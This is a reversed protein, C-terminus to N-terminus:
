EGNAAGEAEPHLPIMLCLSIFLPLPLFVSCNLIGNSQAERDSQVLSAIPVPVKYSNPRDDSSEILTAPIAPPMRKPICRKFLARLYLAPVAYARGIPPTRRIELFSIKTSSSSFFTFYDLLIILAAQDASRSAPWRASSWTLGPAHTHTHM